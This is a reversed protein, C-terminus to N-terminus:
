TGDFVHEGKNVEKSSYLGGGWKDEGRKGETMRWGEGMGGRRSADVVEFKRAGLEWEAM